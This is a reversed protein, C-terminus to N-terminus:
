VYQYNEVVVETIIINKNMKISLACNIYHM